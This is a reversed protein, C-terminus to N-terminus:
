WNAQVTAQAEDESLAYRKMLQEVAQAPNASIDKFAAVLSKIAADREDNRGKDEAQKMSKEWARCMDIVEDTENKM